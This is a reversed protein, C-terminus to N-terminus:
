LDDPGHHALAGRLRSRRDGAGARATVNHPVAKMVV